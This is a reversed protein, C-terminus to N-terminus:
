DTRGAQARRALEKLREAAARWGAYAKLRDIASAAPDGIVGWLRREEALAAEYGAQASDRDGNKDDMTAAQALDRVLRWVPEPWASASRPLRVSGVAM